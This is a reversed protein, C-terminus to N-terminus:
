QQLSENLATGSIVQQIKTGFWFHDYIRVALSEHPPPLCVQSKTLVLHFSDESELRGRVWQRNFYSIYKPQYYFGHSAFFKIWSSKKWMTQHLNVGDIYDPGSPASIIVLGSDKLNQQLNLILGLLSQEDLHEIVEWLTIIDFKIPFEFPKGIDATHLIGLDHKWAARKTRLSYDSGEIGHSICGADHFDMVM